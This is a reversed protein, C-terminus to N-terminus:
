EDVRRAFTSFNMKITNMVYQKSCLNHAFQKRPVFGPYFVCRSFVARVSLYESFLVCLIGCNRKKKARKKNFSMEVSIWKWKNIWKLAFVKPFFRSQLDSSTVPFTSTFFTISEMQRPNKMLISFSNQFFIHIKIKKNSLSMLCTCNDVIFFFRM